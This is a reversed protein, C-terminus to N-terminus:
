LLTCWWQKVLSFANGLESM